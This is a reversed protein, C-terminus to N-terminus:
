DNAPDVVSDTVASDVKKQRKSAKVVKAPKTGRIIGGNKGRTVYALSTVHAYLNVLGLVKKPDESLATGVAQALQKIQMREGDQMAAVANEAAEYVQKSYATISEVDKSSM